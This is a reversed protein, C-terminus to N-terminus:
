MLGLLRNKMFHENTKLLDSATKGDPNRVSTDAGSEILFEMAGSNYTRAAYIMLPTMGDANTANVDAGAEVLLRLIEVSQDAGAAITLATSGDSLGETPKLGYENMLLKIMKPGGKYVHGNGLANMLANVGNDNVAHVDAGADALLRIIAPGHLQALGAQIFATTGNNDTANVDQDMELLRAAVEASNRGSRILATAGNNDTGDVSLGQELLWDLVKVNPNNVAALMAANQGDRGVKNIDSHKALHTVVDFSPNRWAANLFADWGQNDIDDYALGLSHFFEFVHVYRSRMAAEHMATRGNRDKLNIDVGAKILERFVELDPQLRVAHAFSNRKVIDLHNVDVGPQALVQRVAEATGGKSVWFIAPRDELQPVNMKAGKEILFEWVDEGAMANGARVIISSGSRNTENIDFGADLQEQIMEITVPEFWHDQKILDNDTSSGFASASVAAAAAVILASIKRRTPFCMSLVSKKNRSSVNHEIKM